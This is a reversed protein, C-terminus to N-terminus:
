RYSPPTPPVQREPMVRISGTPDRRSAGPKEDRHDAFIWKPKPEVIPRFVTRVPRTSLVIAVLLCFALMAVLYLEPWDEGRLAGSERLPYLVFSHLLYVYMTYQGLQTMWTERRPLLVFFAACLSVTLVILGLRVGGAWWQDGGLGSYSQDYFFWYRLDIARWLDIFAVLVAIWLLMFLAAAGRILWTQKEVLRWKDILKWQHLQWGLVFYPLIGLTRALSFTSDVNDLYGVGVSIILAWALPWRLLALYPLVLRFIGLALLFWLTWSPRTPNLEQKGEVFFQVLTWITEMIAYPVLIDTIVRKMQRENPPGGKTFYGSVIAFAPMHFAYIFLYVVLAADSDYTIRQIGHGMVVLVICAFRANDWFPVRPKPAPAAHSGLPEASM